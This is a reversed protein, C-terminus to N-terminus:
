VLRKGPVLSTRAHFAATEHKSDNRRNIEIMLWTQITSSKQCLYLPRSALAVQSGCPCQIARSSYEYRSRAAVGHETSYPMLVPCRHIIVAIGYSHPLSLYAKSGNVGAELDIDGKEIGLTCDSSDTLESSAEALGIDLLDLLRASAVRAKSLDPTLAFM